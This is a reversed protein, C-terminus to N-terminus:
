YHLAKPNLGQIPCESLLQGCLDKHTGELASYEIFDTITLSIVKWFDPVLLSVESARPLSSLCKIQKYQFFICSNFEPATTGRKGKDYFWFIDIWFFFNPINIAGWSRRIQEWIRKVSHHIRCKELLDGYIFPEGYFPSLYFIFLSGWLLSLALVHQSQKAKHM